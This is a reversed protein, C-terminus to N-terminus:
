ADRSAIAAILAYRDSELNAALQMRRQQDGGVPANRRRPFRGPNPNRAPAVIMVRDHGHKPVLQRM